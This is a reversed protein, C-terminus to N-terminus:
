NFPSKKAAPAKGAPAAPAKKAAEQKAKFDKEAAEAEVIKDQSRKIVDERRKANAGGASDPIAAVVTNVAGYKAVADSFRNTQVLGEGEEILKDASDLMQNVIEKISKDIKNTEAKATESLQRFRTDVTELVSLATNYNSIAQEFQSEVRLKDAEQGIGLAREIFGTQMNFAERREAIAITTENIRDAAIDNARDFELARQFSRLAEELDTDTAEPSDSRRFWVEGQSIYHKALKSSSRQRQPGPKGQALQWERVGRERSSDNNASEGSAYYLDGITEYDLRKDVGEVKAFNEYARDAERPNKRVELLYRIEDVFYAALADPSPELDDTDGAPRLVTFWTDRAAEVSREFYSQGAQALFGKAGNGRKYDDAIIALDDPYFTRKAAFYVAVDRMYEYKGAKPTVSFRELTAEMDSDVRQGLSRDEDSFAVGFPEVLNAALASLAGMRFAFYSGAGAQKAARLLQIQNSVGAIAQEDSHIPAAAYIIDLGTEAGRLIDADYSAEGARFVGPFEERISQLAAMGIAKRARPGWALADTACLALCLGLSM